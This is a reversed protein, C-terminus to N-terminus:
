MVDRLNVSTTLNYNAKKQTVNITVTVYRINAPTATTSGNKDTYSFSLSQIGDALIQSNRMLSTGTLQYTISNGNIDTFIFQSSTATSIDNLSRVARLDREMRELAIQGQWDADTVNQATLYASLGQGLMTTAITGIVGLIVIVIIAEILTFGQQKFTM